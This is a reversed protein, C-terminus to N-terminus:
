NLVFEMILLDNIRGGGTVIQVRRLMQARLRALSTGNALDETELARLYNNLVDVIRPMLREVEAKYDSGVELQARFRLHGSRGDLSIVIPDVPVFAIDPMKGIAASPAAVDHADHVAQAGSAGLLGSQMVYFGGGGGLLALVLGLMLPRKSPKKPTAEVGASEDTM